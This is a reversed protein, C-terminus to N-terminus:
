NRIENAGLLGSGLQLISCSGLQLISCSGLQLISCSGLQLISCSGLQVISCSGLQLISCSGLQLIGQLVKAQSTIRQNAVDHSESLQLESHNAVPSM